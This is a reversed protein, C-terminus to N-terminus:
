PADDTGGAADLTDLATTLRASEDHMGLNRLTYAVDAVKTTFDVVAEVLRPDIEVVVCPQKM